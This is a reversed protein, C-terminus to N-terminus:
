GPVRFKEPYKKRQKASRKEEVHKRILDEFFISIAGVRDYYPPGEIEDRLAKETKDTLSIMIKGM